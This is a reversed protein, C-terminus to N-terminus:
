RAVRYPQTAGLQEYDDPLTARREAGFSPDEGMHGRPVMESMNERPVAVTAGEDVAQPVAEVIANASSPKVGAALAQEVMDPPPRKGTRAARALAALGEDASKFGYKIGTPIASLTAGLPSSVFRKAMVGLYTNPKRTKGLNQKAVAKMRLLVSEDAQRAAFAKGEGPLAGDIHKELIEKYVDAAARAAEQIATPDANPGRNNAIDQLRSKEARVRELDIPKGEKAWAEAKSIHRDMADAIEVEDFNAARKAKAEQLMTLATDAKAPGAVMQARAITQKQIEEIPKITDVVASHFDEADGMAKRLAPTKRVMEVDAQGVEDLKGKQKPTGGEKIAEHLRADSRKVSGAVVDGAADKAVKVAAGGRSAAGLAAGTLIDKGTDAGGVVAATAGEGAGQALQGVAGLARGATPVIAGGLAALGKGVGAAPLGTYIGETIWDHPNNAGEAERSREAERPTAVKVGFLPNVYAGAPAMGSATEGRQLAGGDKSGPGSLGIAGHDATSTPASEPASRVDAPDVESLRLPGSSPASKVDAPDLESLKM